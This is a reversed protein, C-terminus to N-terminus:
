NHVSFKAAQGSSTRIFYFGNNLESMNIQLETAQGLENTLVQKSYVLQGDASFIQINEEALTSNFEVILIENKAVPNPRINLYNDYCDLTVALIDSYDVSGDWDVMKLQYFYNGREQKIDLKNYSYEGGSPYKGEVKGVLEFSSSSPSREYIEFHSFNDESATSWELTVNCEDKKASFGLLEVPLPIRFASSPMNGVDRSSPDPLDCYCNDNVNPILAIIGASLDETTGFSFNVNKSASGNISGANVTTLVSGTIGGAGDHKYIEISLDDGFNTSSTNSLDLIGEYQTPGNFNFSQIEVEFTPLAVQLVESTSGMSIKTDSCATAGCSISANTQLEMRLEYDTCSPSPNLDLSFSVLEGDALGLPIAWKMFQGISTSSISPTSSVNQDGTNGGFSVYSLGNPIFVVVSDSTTVPATGDKVFSFDISEISSCENVSRDSISTNIATYPASVGNINIGFGSRLQGDGIAPGGCLARNGFTQTIIPTGIVIGCTSQMEFRVYLINKPLERVGPLYQGNAWDFLGSGNALAGIDFILDNGTGNNSATAADATADFPIREDDIAGGDDTDNAGDADLVGDGNRDYWLYGSGAVYELGNDLSPISLIIDNVPEIQGSILQVEVPFPSCMDISSSGYVTTGDSPDVTNALPTVINSIQSTSPEVYLTMQEMCKSKAETPTSPYGACRHGVYVIVSDRQCFLVDAEIQFSRESSVGLNGLEFLGNANLLVETYTGADEQFVQITNVDIDGPAEVIVWLNSTGGNSSNNEVDLNWAINNSYFPETQAISTIGLNAVRSKVLRSIDRLEVPDSDRYKELVAQAFSAEDSPDFDVQLNNPVDCTPSVNVILRFTYTEDGPFILGGNDSFIGNNAPNNLDFIYDSYGAGPLIATPTIAVTDESFYTFREISIGADFFVYNDPIRVAFSDVIGIRRYEYPFIQTNEVGGLTFRVDKVVDSANCGDITVNSTNVNTIDLSVHTITGAFDSCSYPTGGFNTTTYGNVRNIVSRNLLGSSSYRELVYTITAEITDGDSFVHSNNPLNFLDPKIRYTHKGTSTTSTLTGTATAGDLDVYRIEAGIPDFKNRNSNDGFDDEIMIRRFGGLTNSKVVSIVKSIITDGEIARYRRIQAPDVAPPLTGEDTDVTAPIGDCDNDTDPCGNNDGDEIDVNSRYFDYFQHSMGDSCPNPCNTSITVAECFVPIRCVDPNCSNKPTIYLNVELTNNGGSELCDVVLPFSISGNKYQLSNADWQASFSSSNTIDTSSAAGPNNVGNTWTIDAATGTDLRDPLNVELDITADNALIFNELNANLLDIYAYQAPAGEFFNVPSNLTAEWELESITNKQDSVDLNNSCADNFTINEIDFSHANYDGVCGSPCCSYTRVVLELTSGAPITVPITVDGSTKIDAGGTISTACGYTDSVDVTNSATVTSYNIGDLSYSLNGADFVNLADDQGVITFSLNILDADGDNELLVTHEMYDTGYLICEDITSNFSVNLDPFEAAFSVSQTNENRQCYINPTTQGLVGWYAAHGIQINNGSPCSGDISFDFSLQLSENLEFLGNSNGIDAAILDASTIRVRTRRGIVSLQGLPISVTNSGILQINDFALINDVDDLEVSFEQLQGPLGQVIDLTRTITGSTTLTNSTSSINTISLASSVPQYTSLPVFPTGGAGIQAQDKFIGSGGSALIDYTACTARRPVNIEIDTGSATVQIIPDNATGSVTGLTGGTVTISNVGGNVLEIGKDDLDVHIDYSNGSTAGSINITMDSIDHGISNLAGLTIDDINQASAWYSFMIFTLTFLTQISNPLM